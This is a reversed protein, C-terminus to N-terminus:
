AAKPEEVLSADVSGNRVLEFLEGTPPRVRVENVRVGNSPQSLALRALYDDFGRQWRASHQADSGLVSFRMGIPYESSGSQTITM